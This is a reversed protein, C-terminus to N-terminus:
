REVAMWFVPPGCGPPPPGSRGPSPSATSGAAVRPRGVPVPVAGTLESAGPRGPGAAARGDRSTPEVAGVVEAYAELEAAGRAPLRGAAVLLQAREYRLRAPHPCCCPCSWAWLQSTRAARAPGRGLGPHQEPDRLVIDLPDAPALMSPDLPAGTAGAVLLEADEGTLLRGGDFPDALVQEGPRTASASWSTGRCRWGTCRRARGAPGGGDVGGVAPDAARAAAAAGRAAALVGAAPLRGPTGRFGCGGASCSPAAGRGLGRARASATRCCGPWGTWNSRPRTSRRGRGAGPRGRAGSSCACRPWTPGSPRGRRRVAAPEASREARRFRRM